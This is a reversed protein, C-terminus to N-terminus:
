SPSEPNLAAYLDALRSATAASDKPMKRIHDKLQKVHLAPVPSDKASIEARPNLFVILAQPALGLDPGHKNLFRNFGEVEGAIEALPNGLPDPAFLGFLGRRAGPNLWKKGTFAVPGSQYKPHLVIVGGPGALVHSAGLRFNFLTYRDDLGKLADTLGRDPRRGWRNNFVTGVNTLTIGIFFAGFVVTLLRVDEPRSLALINIVLAGILLATGGFFAYKGILTNRKVLKENTIIRM